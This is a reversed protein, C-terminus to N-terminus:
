FLIIKSIRLSFYKMIIASKTKLTKDPIRNKKFIKEIAINKKCNTGKLSLELNDLYDLCLIDEQTKYLKM